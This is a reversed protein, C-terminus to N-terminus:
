HVNCDTSGPAGDITRAKFVALALASQALYEDRSVLTWKPAIEAQHADLFEDLVHLARTHQDPHAIQFQLEEASLEQDDAVLLTSANLDCLTLLAGGVPPPIPHVTSGSAIFQPLGGRYDYMLAFYLSAADNLYLVAASNPGARDVATKVVTSRTHGYVEGAGSLRMAAYCDAAIMVAVCVVSAVRISRTRHTLAAAGLLATVPLAWVNYSATFAQFASTTLGGLAILTLNVLLFLLLQKGRPSSGPIAAFIMLTLGALM